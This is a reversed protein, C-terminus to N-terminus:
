KPGVLDKCRYMCAALRASSNGNTRAWLPIAKLSIGLLMLAPKCAKVPAPVSPSTDSIGQRATIQFTTNLMATKLATRLTPTAFTTIARVAATGTVTHTNVRGKGTIPEAGSGPSRKMGPVIKNIAPWTIYLKFNIRDARRLEVKPDVFNAHPVLVRSLLFCAKSPTQRHVATQLNCRSGPLTRGATSQSGHM